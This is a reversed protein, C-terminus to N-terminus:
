RLANYFEEVSIKGLRQHDLRRYISHLEHDTLFVNNSKLIANLTDLDITGDSNQSM